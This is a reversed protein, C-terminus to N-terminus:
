RAQFMQDAGAPKMPGHKGALDGVQCTEPREKMCPTVEGRIFPDLHALTKTCNGDAEVPM